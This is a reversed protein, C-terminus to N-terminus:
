RLQTRKYLKIRKLDDRDKPHRFKQTPDRLAKKKARVEESLSRYRVGNIIKIRPSPSPIKSYDIIGIDDKTGKINDRGKDMVKITGPHLAPKVYYNDAGSIRDFKKEITRASVKPNKTLIDYDITARSFIGIHKQISRAGFIISKNMRTQSLLAVKRTESTRHKKLFRTLKKFTM